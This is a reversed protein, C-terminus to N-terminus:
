FAERLDKLFTYEKIDFEQYHTRFCSGHRFNESCCKCISEIVMM